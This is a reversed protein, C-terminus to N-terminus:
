PGELRAKVEAIFKHTDPDGSASSAQDASAFWKNALPMDGKEIAFITLWAAAEAIGEALGGPGVQKYRDHAEEWLERSEERKGLRNKVVAPYRVTNAYDLSNNDAHQRYLSLAEDYSAEAEELRGAYENNIGIHRKVWAEELPLGLERYLDAARTYAENAAERMFPPRSVISGLNKLADALVKKPGGSEADAVAHKAADIRSHFEAHRKLASSVRERTAHDPVAQKNWWELTGEEVIAGAEILAEIIAAHDPKYENAASWFAQGLVTGGYMNKIEMPVNREILLKIVDLRGSSAAYHFGSLGTRMGAYPEVGEDLLFAATDAQGLMCAASYIEALTEPHVKFLGNEVWEKIQVDFKDPGIASEVATFDGREMAALIYRFRLPGEKAGAILDAWGAFGVEDAVLARATELDLDKGAALLGKESMQRLRNEVHRHFQPDTHYLDLIANALDDFEGSSAADLHMLDRFYKNLEHRDM